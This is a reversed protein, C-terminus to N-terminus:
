RSWKRKPVKNARYDHSEKLFDSVKGLGHWALQLAVLVAGWNTTTLSFDGRPIGQIVEKATKDRRFLAM